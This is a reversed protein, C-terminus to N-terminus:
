KVSQYLELWKPTNSITEYEYTFSGHYSVDRAYVLEGDKVSVYGM